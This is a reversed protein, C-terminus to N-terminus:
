PYSAVGLLIQEVVVLDGVTVQMDPTPTGAIVPAIDVRAKQDDALTTLGQVARTLLVLDGANVVGNDDVDGWVPADSGSLPDHGAAVQMGDLFGDADTDPALPDTDLGQSYTDAPPSAYNVEFGDSLGDDDSDADLPNTGIAPLTEVSDALGDNDDDDDLSDPVGDLDSDVISLAGYLNLRGHESWSLFNQGIAGVTDAGQELQNRVLDNCPVGGPSTCGQPAQGPFLQAWVLAAAGAVHPSAMSTGSKWSLCGETLPDFPFGLLGALFVCDGVPNTSLIDAGPALLSM